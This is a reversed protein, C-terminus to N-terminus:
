QRSAALTLDNIACQAKTLRCPKTGDWAWVVDGGPITLRISVVETVVRQTISSSRNGTIVVGGIAGGGGRGSTTVKTADEESDSRGRLVADAKDSEEVAAFRGSNVIAAIIQERLIPGTNGGIEDVYIKQIPDFKSPPRQPRQPPPSMPQRLEVITAQHSLTPLKRDAVVVWNM